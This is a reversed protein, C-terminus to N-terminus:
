EGNGDIDEFDELLNEGADPEDLHGKSFVQLAYYFATYWAPMV